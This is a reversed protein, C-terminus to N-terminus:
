FTIDLLGEAVARLREASMESLRMALELYPRNVPRAVFAQLEPPLQTFGQINEQETAWQGAPGTQDRFEDLSLRLIQLMAELEPLPIPKEGREYARLTGATIGIEKALSKMSIDAQQRFSRLKAGIIRQRLTMTRRISSAEFSSRGTLATDGWFHSLPVGLFFALSELEPLSPSTEGREYAGIRHSSVGIAAACEKMTKGADLRADRLLVGLKKARIKMALNEAM